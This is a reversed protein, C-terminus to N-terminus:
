RAGASQARTQIDDSIYAYLGSITPTNTLAYICYKEMGKVRISSVTKCVDVAMEVKEAVVDDIAKQQDDPDLRTIKYAEDHIASHILAARVEQIATLEAGITSDQRKQREVEAFIAREMLGFVCMVWSYAVDGNQDSFVYNDEGAVTREITSRIPPFMAGSVPQNYEVIAGADVLQMGYCDDFTINGTHLDAHTVGLTDLCILLKLVNFAIREIRTIVSPQQVISVVHDRIPQGVKDMVTVYVTAEQQTQLDRHIYKYENGSVKERLTVVRGNVFDCAGNVFDFGRNEEEPGIAHFTDVLRGAENYAYFFKVAVSIQRSEPGRFADSYLAVRGVAGSGLDREYKLVQEGRFTAEATDPIVVEVTEARPPQALMLDTEDDSKRERLNLPARVICIALDRSPISTLNM